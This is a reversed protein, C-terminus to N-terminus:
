VNGNINRDLGQGEGLTKGSGDNRPCKRGLIRLSLFPLSQTVANGDGGGTQKEFLSVQYFIVAREQTFPLPSM